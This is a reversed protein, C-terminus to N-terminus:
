ISSAQFSRTLNKQWEKRLEKKVLVMYVIIIILITLKRFVYMNGTFYSSLQYKYM